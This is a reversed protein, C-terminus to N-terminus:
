ALSKEGAVRGKRTKIYIGVGGVIVSFLMLKQAVSWGASDTPLSSVTFATHEPKSPTESSTIDLEDGDVAALASGILEQLGPWLILLELAFM